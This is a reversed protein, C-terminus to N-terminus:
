AGVRVIRGAGGQVASVRAAPHEHQHVAGHPEIPPTPHMHALADSSLAPLMSFASLRWSLPEVCFCDCSWHTHTFFKHRVCQPLLLFYISAEGEHLM